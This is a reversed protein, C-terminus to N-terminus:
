LLLLTDIESGWEFVSMSICTQLERIGTLEVSQVNVGRTNSYEKM